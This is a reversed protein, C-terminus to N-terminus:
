SEIVALVQGEEVAQGESVLLEALKGDAPAVVAIEMKMSELIMIEDAEELADGVSKEVKWVTGTIESAVEIRAM